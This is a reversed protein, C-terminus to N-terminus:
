LSAEATAVVHLGIWAVLENCCEIADFIIAKDADSLQSGGGSLLETLAQSTRASRSIKFHCLRMQELTQEKTPPNHSTTATKAQQNSM